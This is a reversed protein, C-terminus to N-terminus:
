GIEVGQTALRGQTEGIQLTQCNSTASLIELRPSLKTPIEPSLVRLRFGVFKLLHIAFCGLM